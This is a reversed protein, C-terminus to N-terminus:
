KKLHQIEPLMSECYAVQDPLLMAAAGKDEFLKKDDSTYFEEWNSEDYLHGVGDIRGYITGTEALHDYDKAAWNDCAKASSLIPVKMPFFPFEMVYKILVAAEASYEKPCIYGLEDHVQFVLQLGPFKDMLYKRIVVMNVKLIDASSGQIISNFVTGPSVSDTTFHRWRGGITQFEREGSRFRETIEKIYGEVGYYTQFFKNRWETATDVDYLGDETLLNSMKAFKAPGAGYMLGFNLNKAQKRPVNVAESTSRHVDGIYHRWGEHIVHQNYVNCLAYDGTFHAILRLEIQSQDCVIMDYGEPAAFLERLKLGFYQIRSDYDGGKGRSPINQLNPRSSSTRGTKTGVSNFSGHIVDEGTTNLIDLFGEIYTTQLKKAVRYDLIAQGIPHDIMGLCTSDVVLGSKRIRESITEPRKVDPIPDGEEVFAVGKSNLNPTYIKGGGLRVEDFVPPTINLEYFLLSCLQPSSGPNFDDRGALDYVRQELEEVIPELEEGKKRLGEVDIPLGHLEARLYEARVESEIDMFWNWTGEKELKKKCVRLLKLLQKTDDAAYAKFEKVQEQRLKVLELEAQAVAKKVYTSYKEREMPSLLDDRYQLLRKRDEKPDLDSTNLIHKRIKSWGIADVNYKPFPRKAKRVDDVWLELNDQHMSIMKTLYNIKQVVPSTATVEEYTVMKYNCYKDVLYKLGHPEEENFGWSLVVTDILKARARSFDIIGARHSVIIDYSVNHAAAYLDPNEMLEKFLACVEPTIEYVGVKNGSALSLLTPRAKWPDKADKSNGTESEAEFDFAFIKNKLIEAKVKNLTHM